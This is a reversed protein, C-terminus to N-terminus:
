NKEWKEHSKEMEDKISLSERGIMPSKNLSHTDRFGLGKTPFNRSWRLEALNTKM